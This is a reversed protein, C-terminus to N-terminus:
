PTEVTTASLPTFEGGFFPSRGKLTISGEIGAKQGGLKLTGQTTTEAHTFNVTAGNPIGIVSGSIPFTLNLAKISCGQLFFTALPVGETAPKFIVTDGRGQTTARVNNGEVFGAIGPVGGADKRVECGKGAPKVVTVGTFEPALAGGEGEVFHEGTFFDKRNELWGSIIVGTAQLEVEVGSLVGRLRLPQTAKGTTGNSGSVETSTTEGIGVHGYSGGGAEKCHADAFGTGGSVCTFATTGTAANASQGTLASLAVGCVLVLGTVTKRRM